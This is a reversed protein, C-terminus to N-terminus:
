EQCQTVNFTQFVDGDGDDDDDDDNGDFGSDEDNHDGVGDHDYDDIYRNIFSFAAWSSQHLVLSALGDIGLPLQYVQIMMLMMMLILM